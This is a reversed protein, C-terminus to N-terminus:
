RWFKVAFAGVGGGSTGVVGGSATWPIRRYFNVTGVILLPAVPLDAQQVEVVLTLM